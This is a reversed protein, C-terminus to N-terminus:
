GRWYPLDITRLDVKALYRRAYFRDWELETLTRYPMRQDNTFARHVMVLVSNMAHAPIVGQERQRRYATLVRIRSETVPRSTNAMTELAEGPTM